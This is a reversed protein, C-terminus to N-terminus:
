GCVSYYKGILELTYNDAVLIIPSTMVTIECHFNKGDDTTKLLPIFYMDEYMVINNSQFETNVENVRKLEVGDSIWVINVESAIGRVATINCNLTLPQGVIQYNPVDITM